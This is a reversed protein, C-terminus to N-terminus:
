LGSTGLARVRQCAKALVACLFHLEATKLTLISKPSCVLLAAQCLPFIPGSGLHDVPTMKILALQLGSGLPLQWLPSFLSSGLGESPNAQMLQRQRSFCQELVADASVYSSGQNM